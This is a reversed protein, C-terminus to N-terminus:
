AGTGGASVKRAAQLGQVGGTVLCILLPVVLVISVVATVDEDPRFVILLLGTTAVLAGGGVLWHGGARQAADWTSVSRMSSRTRSGPWGRRRLRGEGGAWGVAAIIVGVAVWFWGVSM